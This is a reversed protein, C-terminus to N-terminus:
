NDGETEQQELVIQPRCLGAPVQYTKGPEVKVQFREEFVKVPNLEFTCSFPAEVMEGVRDM